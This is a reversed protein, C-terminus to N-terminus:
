GEEDEGQPAVVDRAVEGLEGDGEEIGIGLPHLYLVARHVEGDRAGLLDDSGGDIARRGLAEALDFDVAVDIGTDELDQAIHHADDM